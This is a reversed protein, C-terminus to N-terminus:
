LNPLFLDYGPFCYVINLIIYTTLLITELRPPITCWRIPEQCAQRFTPPLILCRRIWLWTRASHSPSYDNDIQKANFVPSNRHHTLLDVARCAIGVLLVLGWYGYLSWRCSFNAFSLLDQVFHFVSSFDNSLLINNYFAQITHRGSEFFAAHPVVAHHFVNNAAEDASVVPISSLDVGGVISQFEPLPEDISVCYENLSPLGASIERETCYTAACYYTSNIILPNSCEDQAGAVSIKYLVANCAYVCYQDPDVQYLAYSSPIFFYTLALLFQILAMALM